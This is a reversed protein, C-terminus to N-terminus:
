NIKGPAAHHQDQLLEGFHLPDNDPDCPFM